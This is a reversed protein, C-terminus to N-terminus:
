CTTALAAATFDFEGDVAGAVFAAWEGEDLRFEVGTRLSRVLTDTGPRTATVVGNASTLGECAERVFM